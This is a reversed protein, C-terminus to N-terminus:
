RCASIPNLSGGCSERSPQVRSGLGLTLIWTKHIRMQDTTNRGKLTSIWTKHAEANSTRAGAPHVSARHSLGQLLDREEQRLDIKCAIRAILCTPM